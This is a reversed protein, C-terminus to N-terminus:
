KRKLTQKYLTPKRNDEADKMFYLEFYEGRAWKEIMNDYFPSSPSGSQGGPYIGYGKPEDGLEVVMRWSPGTTKSVANPALRYGNTPIDYRGFPELSRSLHAIYTGRYQQWNYSKDELKEGLKEKMKLFAQTVVMQPTELKETATIDWFINLLHEKMMELTRWNAPQLVEISDRYIWIEDWLLEHLQDSWESFLIPAALEKDFRYNWDELIKVLGRDVTNLQTSDLLGLLLPLAEEAFISYSSTQLSMMDEVTISDMETLTRNIYRGRYNDFGESNYYYPYTSDTSRQNASAVFGRVPNKAQPVEEKPVFGLWENESKSGDQVFRGQGIKKIPFKGNVKLAIDGNKSAFVFNQAPIDYLKLAESYDDYNKAANLRLFIQWEGPNPHELSLWRMALDKYDDNESEYVIPGYHTYKVKEVVSKKGKIKIVEEVIEAKRAEGDYRYVTKAEDIWDLTYWDTVDHGVNTVSWAIDNNFGIIIGPIGPLSVGYTNSTATHIQVEFWISPLTLNLHPDGCLIPNGNATKFGAVAWNNSGISPETRPLSPYPFRQGIVTHPPLTDLIKPQQLSDSEFKTGVPIVPSQKPNIEPFLFNFTADGFVSLANTAEVDNYSFNLTQAMNKQFLATRFASWQTPEFGMLKYELPYDKPSLQKIYANVGAVYAEMLYYDESEQWTSVAREAAVLMGRKRQLKDYELTREGLVESLMGGAARSSIDMQWLRHQATVYGKAFLADELTEAFIHPVLREDYVVEVNAKLGKLKRNHFDKSSAGDANQWFGDFPSMLKGLAPMDAIGFPSATNLVYTLGFTVLLPVIFKIWKM